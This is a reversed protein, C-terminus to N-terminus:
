GLFNRVKAAELIVESIRPTLKKNTITKLIHTSYNHHEIQPELAYLGLKAATEALKQGFKTDTNVYDLAASVDFRWNPYVSELLKMDSATIANLGFLEPPLGVSYLSATFGIARPLAPGSHGNFGRGYGKKAAHLFRQRRRPVFPAITTILSIAKHMETQYGIELRKILELLKKEPVEVPIQMKEKKLKAVADHVVKEPYDFKFSSQATLTAVGAYEHFINLANEPTFHGRFAPGGVGIIPYIPIKIKESLKQLHRLGIKVGLVAAIMGSQLAPDSRALYVRQYEPDTAKLVKEVVKDSKVINEISEFLPIVSVDKPALNKLELIEAASEAQPLIIEFIPKPAGRYYLKATEDMRPIAGLMKHVTSLRDPELRPNPIRFTLREHRGLQHKRFFHHDAAFITDLIDTDAEKGEADWKQEDCGLNKYCFLAERLEDDASMIQNQVFSPITVNDPHQTSMVRPIAPM